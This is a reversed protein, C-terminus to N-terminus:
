ISSNPKLLMLTKNQLLEIVDDSQLESLVSLVEDEALRQEVIVPIAVEFMVIPKDPAAYIDRLITLTASTAKSM